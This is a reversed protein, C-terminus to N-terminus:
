VGLLKDYPIKDEETYCCIQVEGDYPHKSITDLAIEAALPKPFCFIGTSICCFAVSHLNNALAIDLVSKYCNRLLDSGRNIDSESRMDPGVTHIIKKCPLNYANTMKSEGVKCGHLKKCEQLLGPGAAQHIKGDIGGGGLLSTNAANVIADVKLKTIDGVFVKIQRKKMEAAEKAFVYEYGGRYDEYTKWVFDVDLNTIAKLKEMVEDPTKYKIPVVERSYDECRTSKCGWLGHKKVIVCSLIFDVKVDYGIYEQPIVSLLIADFDRMSESYHFGSWAGGMELNALALLTYKGNRQKTVASENFDPSYGHDILKYDVREYPSIDYRIEKPVAAGLELVFREPLIINEVPIAEKFLKAMEKLDRKFVEGVGIPTVLFELEPHNRAYDIFRSVAARMQDLPIESPIAYSQGTPGEGIGRSAGFYKMAAEATGKKNFGNSYSNFVFIQDGRIPATIKGTFRRNYRLTADDRREECNKPDEIIVNGNNDKTSMLFYSAGKGSGTAGFLPSEAFIKYINTKSPRPYLHEVAKVLENKRMSNGPTNKLLDVAKDIIAIKYDPVAKSSKGVPDVKPPYYGQQQYKPWDASLIYYLTKGEGKKRAAVSAGGQSTYAKITVDSYRWGNDDVYKRLDDFSAIGNHNALYKLLEARLDIADSKYNQNGVYRYTGNGGFEIHANKAVSRSEEFVDIGPYLLIRKNYEEVLDPKSLYKDFGKEIAFDYLIRVLRGAESLKAWKISIYTDGDKESTEITDSDAKIYDRAFDLQVSDLEKSKLEDMVTDLRLPVPNSSLVDKVIPIVDRLIGTSGKGYHKTDVCFVGLKKQDTITYGLGDLYFRLTKEDHGFGFREMLVNKVEVPKIGKFSLFAPDGSEELTTCFEVAYKYVNRVSESSVGLLKSMEKDTPVDKTDTESYLYKMRLANSKWNNGDKATFDKIYKALYQRLAPYVSTLDVSQAM